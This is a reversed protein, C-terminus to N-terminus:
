RRDERCQWSDIAVREPREPDIRVPVMSGAQWSPLELRSVLGRSHATYADASGPDIELVFEVVPDDNISTGTDILRLIRAQAPKGIAIIACAEGRGSVRDFLAACGGHAVVALALLVRRM